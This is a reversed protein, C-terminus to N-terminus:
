PIKTIHSQAHYISNNIMTIQLSICKRFMATELIEAPLTTRMTYVRVLAERMLPNRNEPALAADSLSVSSLQWKLARLHADAYKHCEAIIASPIPLEHLPSKTTHVSYIGAISALLTFLIKV